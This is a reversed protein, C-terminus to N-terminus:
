ARRKRGIVGKEREKGARPFVRLRFASPLCGLVGKKRYSFPCFRARSHGGADSDVARGASRLGASTINGYFNVARRVARLGFSPATCIIKTSNHLWLLCSIVGTSRSIIGANTKAGGGSEAHPGHGIRPRGEKGDGHRGSHNRALDSAGNGRLGCDTGRTTAERAGRELCDVTWVRQKRRRGAGGGAAGGGSAGRRFFGILKAGACPVPSARGSGAICDTAPRQDTSSRIRPPGDGHKGQQGSQGHM